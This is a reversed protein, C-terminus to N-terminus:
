HQWQRSRDQDAAEASDRRWRGIVPVAPDAPGVTVRRLGAHAQVLGATGNLWGLLGFHFQRGALALLAVDGCRLPADAPLRSLGSADAFACIRAAAMGRLPYGTAARLEAGAAAYAALVLGACDLGTAPDRGHLRFPAGVMALAAAFAASGVEVVPIARSCTM